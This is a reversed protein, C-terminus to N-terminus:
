LRIFCALEGGNHCVRPSENRPLQTDTIDVHWASFKISGLPRTWPAPGLGPRSGPESQPQFRPRLDPATVPSPAPVSSAPLTFVTLPVADLAPSSDEAPNGDQEQAPSPDASPFDTPALSQTLFPSTPPLSTGIRLAIPTPPASPLPNIYLTDWSDAEFPSPASPAM